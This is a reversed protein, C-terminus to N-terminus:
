VKSFTKEIVSPNSVSQFGIFHFITLVKPRKGRIQPQFSRSLRQVKNIKGTKEKEITSFSTRCIHTKFKRQFKEQAPEFQQPLKFFM